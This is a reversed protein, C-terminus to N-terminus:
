KCATDQAGHANAQHRDGELTELGLEKLRTEYETEKLGTLMKVACKQVKELTDKDAATWPLWAWTSFELHLRV